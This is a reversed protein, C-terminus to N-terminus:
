PCITSHLASYGVIKMAGGVSGPWFFTDLGAFEIWIGDTRLVIDGRVGSYIIYGDGKFMNM